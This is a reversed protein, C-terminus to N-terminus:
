AIPPRGSNASFRTAHGDDRAASRAHEGLHERAARLDGRLAPEDHDTPVAHVVGLRLVPERHDALHVRVPDQRLVPRRSPSASTSVLGSPMPIVVVAILAPTAGSSSTSAATADIVALLAAAARARRQGRARGAARVHGPEPQEPVQELHRHGRPDVGLHVDRRHRHQRPHPLQGLRPDQGAAAPAVAVPHRRATSAPPTRRSRRAAARRRGSRPRGATRRRAPAPRPRRHRLQRRGPDDAATIPSTRAPVPRIVRRQAATGPRPAPGRSPDPDGCVPRHRSGARIAAPTATPGRRGGHVVCCALDAAPPLVRHREDSLLPTM